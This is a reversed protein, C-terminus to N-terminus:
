LTEVTKRDKDACSRWRAVSRYQVAEAKMRSGIGRKTLRLMTTKAQKRDNSGRGGERQRALPCMITM